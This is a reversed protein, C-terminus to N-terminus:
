FWASVCWVMFGTKTQSRAAVVDGFRILVQRFRVLGNFRNKNPKPAAVVDGFRILVM